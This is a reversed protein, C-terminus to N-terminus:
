GGLDLDTAIRRRAKDMAALVITLDTVLDPRAAPHKEYDDRIHELMQTMFRMGDKVGKVYSVEVFDARSPGFIGM